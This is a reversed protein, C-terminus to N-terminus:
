PVVATLRQALVTGAAVCVPVGELAGCHAGHFDNMYNPDVVYVTDTAVPGTFRANCLPGVAAPVRGVLGSNISLGERVAVQSLRAILAENYGCVWQVQIPVVRLHQYHGRLGTWAEGFPPPLPQVDFVNPRAPIEALQVVAAIVLLAGWIRRKRAAVVVAVIASVSVLFHLAWVFRGSTRFMSPLPDLLKFFGWGLGNKMAEEALEQAREAGLESRQSAYRAAVVSFVVLSTAIVGLRLKRGRVLRRIQMRFVVGVAQGFGPAAKSASRPAVREAEANSGKV